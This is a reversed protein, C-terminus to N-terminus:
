VDQLEERLMVVWFYERVLDRSRSIALTVEVVHLCILMLFTKHM